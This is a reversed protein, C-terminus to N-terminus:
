REPPYHKFLKEAAKNINRDRREPKADMDVDGSAIGRWVIHGTRAEVMDVVLTGVLVEQARASGSRSGAFRFDGFGWANIQLNRDFSTHYAILLDASAAEAQRLGKLMMQADIAGTIRQHNLADPVPTGLTWAYTRFAAFNAAKDFDYTVSQALTMTGMLVLSALTLITRARM